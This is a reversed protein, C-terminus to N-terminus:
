TKCNGLLRLEGKLYVQNGTDSRRYQTRFNDDDGDFRPDLAAERYVYFGSEHLWRSERKSYVWRGPIQKRLQDIITTAMDNITAIWSMPNM